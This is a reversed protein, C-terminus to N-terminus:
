REVKGSGNEVGALKVSYAHVVKAADHSSLPTWNKAIEEEAFLSLVFTKPSNDGEIVIVMRKESLENEDLFRILRGTIENFAFRGGTVRIQELTM